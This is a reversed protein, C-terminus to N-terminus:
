LKKMSSATATDFYHPIYGEQFRRGERKWITPPPPCPGRAKGIGIGITILKANCTSINRSNQDV